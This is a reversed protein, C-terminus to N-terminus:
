GSGQVVEGEGYGDSGRHGEDKVGVEKDVIEVARGIMKQSEEILSFLRRRDEEARRRAEALRSMDLVIRAVQARESRRAKRNAGLSKIMSELQRQLKTMADIESPRLSLIEGKSKYDDLMIETLVIERVLSWDAGSDLDPYERVFDLCRQLFTDYKSEPLIAKVRELERRNKSVWEEETM